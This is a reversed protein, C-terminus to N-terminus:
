PTTLWPLVLDEPTINPYKAQYVTRVNKAHQEASIPGTHLTVNSPLGANQWARLDGPSMRRPLTVLTNDFVDNTLWVTLSTVPLGRKVRDAAEDLTLRHPETDRVPLPKAPRTAPRTSYIKLTM